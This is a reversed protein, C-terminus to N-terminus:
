AAPESRSLALLCALLLANALTPRDFESATMTPRIINGNADGTAHRVLCAFWLGRKGQGLTEVEWGEPLEGLLRLAANADGGVAAEVALAEPSAWFRAPDRPFVKNAFDGITLLHGNGRIADILATLADSM